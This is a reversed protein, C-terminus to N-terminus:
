TLEASATMCPLEFWFRSGQGPQSDVGVTGNMREVARQVLALGIGNGSYLEAPYIREFVRFIREQDELAIGIGDDEVYLRVADREPIQESWLTIHPVTGAETFKAANAILNAIAQTLAVPNAQVIGLSESVTVHAQRQQLTEELDELVQSVISNLNVPQISFNPRNLRSYELLDRIFSETRQAATYVRQLYDEETSNLRSANEELLIQTCRQITRLPAYLDHAVSFCFTELSVNAQELQRTQEEVQRQIEEQLCNLAAEVPQYHTIDVATSNVTAIARRYIDATAQLEQQTQHHHRADRNLKFVGIAIAVVVTATAALLYVMSHEARDAMRVLAASSIEQTQHTELLTARLQLMDHYIPIGMCLLFLLLAGLGITTKRSLWWRM